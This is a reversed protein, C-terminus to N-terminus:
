QKFPIYFCVRTGTPNNYEDILDTVNLQYKESIQSSLLELRKNTISTSLSEHSKDSLKTTKYQRGVGNDEVCCKIKDDEVSMEVMLKGKETKHMLGHWIANEVLPQILLPPILAINTNIHEDIKFVYEFNKYRISELELYMELTSLEEDITIESKRSNDLTIRMLKAFRALYHNSLKRENQAIFSQISNLSNFIFHPNMQSALAQQQYTNIEYLLKNQRQKIRSRIFFFFFVSGFSLVIVLVIFWTTKWFPPEVNISLTTSETSWEGIENESQIELTYEGIPVHNLQILNGSSYLWSEGLEKIRYRYNVKTKLKYNFTAVKIVLSSKDYALDITKNVDLPTNSADKISLIIVSNPSPPMNLIDTSFKHLGKKTGFWVKNKYRYISTVENSVLGINQGLKKVTLNTDIFNVGKNTALWINNYDDVYIDNIQNSVLGDNTTLNIIEESSLITIGAGKTGVILDEGRFELASISRSLSEHKNGLYLTDYSRENKICKYLGGLGGIYLINLSKGAMCRCPIDELLYKNDYFAFPELDAGSNMAVEWEKVPIQHLFNRCGILSHENTLIIEAPGSAYLQRKYLLKNPKLKIFSSGSIAYFENPATGKIIKTVQHKFDPKFQNNLTNDPLLENLHGSKTGFVITDEVGNICTVFNDDLDASQNVDSNLNILYFVGNELTTFWYGGKTDKTISSVSYGNLLNTLVPNGSTDLLTVGQSASCVWLGKNDAYIQIFGNQSAYLHQLKKTKINVSFVDNENNFCISETERWFISKHMSVRHLEFSLPLKYSTDLEPFHHARISDDLYALAVGNQNDLCRFYRNEIMLFNEISESSDSRLTNVKGWKRYTHTTDLVGHKNISYYGINKTNIHVTSLSDVYFQKIIHGQNASLIKNNYAYPVIKNDQFYSLQLSFSVFWIKGTHDELLQFVVNDLLGDQTTFVKFEYGDFRVVGRDTAFWMYGKSDQISHYVESSPFGDEVGYNTFVPNQANLNLTNIISTTLLVLQFLILTYKRTGKNM